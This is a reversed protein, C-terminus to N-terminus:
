EKQANWTLHVYKDCQSSAQSATLDGSVNESSLFKGTITFNQGQITFEQNVIKLPESFKIALNVECSGRRVAFGYSVSLKAVTNSTVSFSIPGGASTKGSWQGDYTVPTPRPTFTSTPLLPTSTATATATSTSTITPIPTPTSTFLQVSNCGLMLIGVVAILRFISIRIRTDM